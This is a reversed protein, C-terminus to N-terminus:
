SISKIRCTNIGLVTYLGCFGAFSTLTLLSAAILLVIGLVGEIINFAFLFAIVASVVLRLIKDISGMNKKM